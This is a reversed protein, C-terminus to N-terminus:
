HLERLFDTNDVLVVKWGDPDVFSAIKTNIGPLPGPQRLIKGGLEKTALDVAEASKYVDNTGIAVQAYANGKSYETVGYNYTLELVTTKDEDAYGLMAITYKYDPVDKKRLLKLGLAKEYFKISRELDGVRLMVQCLPEPTEARQILEFMYGDPDQAFAIVTSGGKVPGPERTIKGGKSKINEALKYVDENAIAFHGFGTGIDYKDVGYNYTLEVAFNTDEPGFGLFANTYKEEPIDRKRLLKMGFCETYYKITRDLDGVRYVAHLMRKNDQKHWDLVTEAPVEAPKSAESGTAM